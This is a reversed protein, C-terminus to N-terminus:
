GNLPDQSQRDTSWNQTNLGCSHQRLWSFSEECGGLVWQTGWLNSDKVRAVLKIRLIRIDDM